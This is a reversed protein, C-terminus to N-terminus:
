IASNSHEKGDTESTNVTTESIYTDISPGTYVYSSRKPCNICDFHPNTCTGGPEWCYPHYSPTQPTISPTPILTMEKGQMEVIIEALREKPLRMLDQKTLKM